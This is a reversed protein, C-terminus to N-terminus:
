TSEGPFVPRLYATGTLRALDAWKALSDPCFKHIDGSADAEFIEDM